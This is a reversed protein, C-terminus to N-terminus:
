GLRRTRALPAPSTTAKAGTTQNFSAASCLLRRILDTQSSAGLKSRIVKLHTRVTSMSIGFQEAIGGPSKDLALACAVRAEAPTLQYLTRLGEELPARPYTSGLLVVVVVDQFRLATVEIGEGLEGGIRGIASGDRTLVGDLQRVLRTFVGPELAGLLQKGRCTALQPRLEGDAVILDLRLCEAFYALLDM